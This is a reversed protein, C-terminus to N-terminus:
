RSELRKLLEATTIYGGKQRRRDIEDEDFDCDLAPKTLSTSIPVFYGIAVGNTDVLQISGPSQELTKQLAPEITVKSM